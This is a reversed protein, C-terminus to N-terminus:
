RGKKWDHYEWAKEAEEMDKTGEALLRDVEAKDSELEGYILADEIIKVADMWNRIANRYYMHATMLEEDRPAAQYNWAEDSLANLREKLELYEDGGGKGSAVNNGAELLDEFTSIFTTKHDTYWERYAANEENTLTVVEVTEQPAAEIKVEPASDDLSAIGMAGGITIMGVIVLKKIVNNNLM